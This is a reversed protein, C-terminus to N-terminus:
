PCAGSLPDGWIKNRVYQVFISYELPMAAIDAVEPVARVIAQAIDVAPVVQRVRVPVVAAAIISFGEFLL